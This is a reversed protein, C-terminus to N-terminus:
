WDAYFDVMVLRNTKKAVEKAENLDYYWKDAIMDAETLEKAGDPAKFAFLADDTENKLTLDKTDVLMRVITGTDSYAYEIQRILGSTPDVFYTAKKRGAPDLTVEIVNMAVGKRNKTGANNEKGLKDFASPNFFPAFLNLEDETFYKALADGTQASKFFTNAKKDFITITKGDAVVLESGRDIRAMNPKALEIKFATPSGGIQMYTLSASLAKAEALAKTHGSLGSLAGSQALVVGFVAIGTLISLKKKM